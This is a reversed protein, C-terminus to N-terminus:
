PMRRQGHGRTMPACRAQQGGCPVLGGARRRLLVFGSAALLISAAMWTGPEPVASGGKYTLYLSAHDAGLEIGFLGDTPANSFGAANIAFYSLSVKNTGSISSSSLIKWSYNSSSNFGALLGRTNPLASLTFLNITFKNTTSLDALNLVGGNTVNILDWSTGPNDAVSFIEWDYKAGGEWTLNGNITEIGPSNGPAITGGSKVVTAGVPGTGGLVAGNSVTVASNSISGNVVLKGAAVTTAGTYTSNTALTLTGAGAKTLNGAGSFANSVSFADSRNFALTAGNSMTVNNTGLTGSTGGNGIQLTGERVETTTAYTNTGSLIVTGAGSKIIKENGSFNSFNGAWTQTGSAPSLELASGDGAGRSTVNKAITFDTGSFKVTGVGTQTYGVFADTPVYTVQIGGSGGTNTFSSTKIELVSNSGGSLFKIAGTSNSFNMANKFETTGQATTGINGGSTSNFTYTGANAHQFSNTTTSIFDVGSVTVNGSFDNDGGVYTKNQVSIPAAGTVNGKIWLAKGLGGYISVGHTDAFVLSNEIIENVSAVQMSVPDSATTNNLTITGIGVLTLTGAGVNNVARIGAVTVNSVVSNTVNGGIVYGTMSFMAITTSNSPIGATWNGSDFWNYSGTNTRIWSTEIAQGGVASAAVIAVILLLRSGALPMYRHAM